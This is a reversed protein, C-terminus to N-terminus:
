TGLWAANAWRGRDAPEEAQVRARYRAHVATRDYDLVASTSDSVDFADAVAAGAGTAQGFQHYRGGAEFTLSHSPTSASRLPPAISRAMPRPGGPDISVALGAAVTLARFSTM